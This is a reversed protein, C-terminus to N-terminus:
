IQMCAIKKFVKNTISITLMLYKLLIATLIAVPTFAIIAKTYAEFDVVISVDLENPFPM